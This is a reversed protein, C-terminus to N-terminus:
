ISTKRHVDIKISPQTGFMVWLIPPGCAIAVQSRVMVIDMVYVINVRFSWGQERCVGTNQTGRPCRSESNNNLRPSENHILPCVWKVKSWGSSIIRFRNKVWSMFTRFTQWTGYPWKIRCMDRIQAWSHSLEGCDRIISCMLLIQGPWLTLSGFGPGFPGFRDSIRNWLVIWFIWVEARVVVRLGFCARNRLNVFKRTQWNPSIWTTLRCLYVM